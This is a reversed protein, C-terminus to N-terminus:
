LFGSVPNDDQYKANEVSETEPCHGHLGDDRRSVPFCDRFRGGGGEGGFVHIGKTGKAFAVSCARDGSVARGEGRCRRRHCTEVCGSIRRTKVDSRLCVTPDVPRSRSINGSIKESALTHHSHEM